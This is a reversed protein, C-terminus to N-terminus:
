ENEVLMYNDYDEDDNFLKNMNIVEPKDKEHVFLKRILSDDRFRVSYTQQFNNRGIRGLAQITKEQTMNELDKGIYGHCFQYNTGYIYNSSAIIMFLKQNQALDKMIQTYDGNKHEVFVGIGMLLLIKWIDDVDKLLMIKVVTPESIDCTFSTKYKKGDAWKSLHEKRNPIFLDNLEISKISNRLDELKKRIQKMEPTLRDKIMKNSDESIDATGDEFLKDQKDIENNVKKNYEISESIENMIQIPIKAQQVCFKAIKNIDEALFISPGDTLTHADKTIFYANSDYEKETKLKFHNYISTWKDEELNKLVLLYYNKLNYMNIDQISSFYREIFYRENSIYKKEDVYILFKVIENLDFYRLITKYNECHEVCELIEQYNDWLLHPICIECNKNVLPISKKCDHSIVSHIDGRFRSRFNSITSHIEEEKPLTASSLVMNPIINKKWNGQIITHLPHTMEDMTITPEDWFTIIDEKENFACMYYMAPLYSKIDCIMIEVNDGVSNDVKFIGGTRYNKTYEKAASFHLRIDEADNCNFGLAIKKGVSLASKALALGVHRAACVFIIRYKESLGIPTLTKGTATPAIYLVLKPSNHKFISYIQKQHNYLEIDTFKNTYNNKEIINQANKIVYNLNIDEKYTELIFHVFELVYKNVISISVHTLKELTYYYFVYQSSKENYKKLFNDCLEVLTYEFINSKNLNNDYNDMKMSDMKKPKDKKKFNTKLTYNLGYKTNYNQISKQFYKEYLYYHNLDNDTIKIFGMLSINDNYKANVDHFGNKLFEIIKKENITVPIEISEWELKSLKQQYLDM